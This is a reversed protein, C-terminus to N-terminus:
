IVEMYLMNGASDFYTCTKEVLSVKWSAIGSATTKELWTPFDIEGRQHSKLSAVFADINVEGIPFNFFTEEDEIVDTTTYYTTHATQADVTFYLVGVTNLGEVLKLFNGNSMKKIQKIEEIHM